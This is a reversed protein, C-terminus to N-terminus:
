PKLGRFALSLVEDALQPPTLQTRPDYWDVLSNVLGILLRGASRSDVDSRISGEDKGLSVLQVLVAEIARRRDLADCEVATNGRLRLLLTVAPMQNALVVVMQQVVFNLREAATGDNAEPQVLIDELAILAQDLAMKLLDGKSTFHHYLASRSIGLIEAVNGMSTADYGHLNFVHVAARLVSQQDHGPRGRSAWREPVAGDNNM